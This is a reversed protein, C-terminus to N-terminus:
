CTRTGPSPPRCTATPCRRATTTAAPPSTAQQDGAHGGPALLLRLLRAGAAARLAPGHGGRAKELAAIAAARDAASGDVFAQGLGDLGAKFQDETAFPFHKNRYGSPTVYRGVFTVLDVESATPWDPHPPIITDAAADIVAVQLDSFRIPDQLGGLRPRGTEFYGGAEGPTATTEPAGFPAPKEGLANDM